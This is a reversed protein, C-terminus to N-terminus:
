KGNNKIISPFRYKSKRKGRDARNPSDFVACFSRM